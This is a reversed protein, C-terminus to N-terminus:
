KLISVPAALQMEKQEIKLRVGRGEILLLLLMEISSVHGQISGGVIVLHM